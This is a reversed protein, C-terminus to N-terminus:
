DVGSKKLLRDYFAVRLVVFPAEDHRLVYCLYYLNIVLKM